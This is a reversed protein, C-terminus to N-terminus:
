KTIANWIDSMRFRNNCSPCHNPLDNTSKFFRTGNGCHHCKISTFGKVYSNLSKKLEEMKLMLKVEPNERFSTAARSKKLAEYYAKPPVSQIDSKRLDNVLWVQCKPNCPKVTLTTGTAVAKSINVGAEGILQGEEDRQEPSGDPRLKEIIGGEISFGLKFPVDNRQTTFKLLSAASQANPHGEDDALEGEIYLFPVKASQWCKLQYPNECDKESFIKKHTRIGGIFDFMKDGHEDNIYRLKSTDLNQINLTEGANDPNQAAAIGYIQLGM